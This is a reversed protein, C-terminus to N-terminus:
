ISMSMYDGGKAGVFAFPDPERQAPPKPPPPQWKTVAVRVAYSGVDVLDDHAAAPFGAHEDIWATVKDSVGAPLWVRGGSVRASYPLARSFKDVDAKLPTVHLGSRTAEATLTMSHQTAEVFATDVSWRQALPRFLDYHNTEGVRAREYDLLVLDGDLTLAWAAAVTYDASTRTSAALDGTLFRWCEDFPWIRGALDIRERGLYAPAQTWRRWWLRKFLGGEAPAPRQQYLSAWVYQGVSKRIGEWDRDGRASQMYEGHKRGLPDTAEDECQAPISVVRWRGGDRIDGENALLYGALDAEHWRTMVLVCKAGPGLRPVVVAQWFRIVRERYTASHAQELDKHVDDLVCLDVPRGTLSGAVGVCYVGGREGEVQWRGAARTDARLRLGLDIAGDDGNFTAVDQKIDSGWRRAIEDAYSVIAVRTSPDNILTWEAFRHSVTTSKTEQPSMFIMLRDHKGDALDVLAQNVLNTAPTRVITPDLEQAMDLPSAWRRAKAPQPAFKAAVGQWVSRDFASLVTM